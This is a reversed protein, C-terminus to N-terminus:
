DMLGFSGSRKVCASLLRKKAILCYDKRKEIGIFKRGLEIAAVGTTGSGCFPDIILTEKKSLFRILWMMVTEPKQTPHNGKKFMSTSPSVFFNPSFGAEKNVPHKTGTRRFVFGFEVAWAFGVSRMPPPADKKCWHFDQVIEFGATEAAKLLEGMKKSQYFSVVTNSMKPFWDDPHVSDSDFAKGFDRGLTTGRKHGPDNRNEVILQPKGINYPPDTFVVAEQPFNFELCDGCYLEFEKQKVITEM